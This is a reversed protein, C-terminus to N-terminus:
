RVPSPSRAPLALREFCGLITEPTDTSALVESAADRIDELGQLVRDKHTRFSLLAIRLSFRGDLRTSSLLIRQRRTIAELFKKNLADLEELSLGDVHL